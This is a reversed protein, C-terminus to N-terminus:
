KKNNEEEALRHEPLRRKFENWDRVKRPSWLVESFACLRPFVQTDLDQGRGLLHTWMMASSGIVRAGLAEEYKKPVPEFSYVHEVSTRTEPYDFFVSTHPMAIIEHGSRAAQLLAERTGADDSDLPHWQLLIARAPLRGGRAIEEAGMLRRNRASLIRGVRSTFYAQLEMENALHERQKLARCDPCDRWRDPPVEDGDINVIPAPFLRVVQDMVAEIFRYTTERAPCLVDKEIGVDQVPRLFYPGRTCGLYPYATLAGLAHGPMEIEPIVQIYRDRAHNVIERLNEESYSGGVRVGREEYWSGVDILRPYGPVPIRWGQDDTLHLHLRNLKHQALLDIYRLLTATPLFTRSCDLLLGRWPYRPKDIVTGFPLSLTGDKSGVESNRKRPLMQSLTQTAWFLGAAASSQMLIGHRDISLRYGEPGLERCDGSTSLRIEASHSRNLPSTRLVAPRHGLRDFLEAALMAAIRKQDTSGRDIVIPARSDLLLRGDKVEISAPRPVVSAFDYAVLSQAPAGSTIAAMGINAIVTFMRLRSRYFASM